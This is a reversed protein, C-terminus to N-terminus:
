DPNRGSATAGHLLLSLLPEISVVVPVASTSRILFLRGLAPLAAALLDPCDPRLDGRTIGRDVVVRAIRLLVQMFGDRRCAWAPTQPGMNMMLAIFPGHDAFHRDFCALFRRLDEQTTPAPQLEVAELDELMTELNRDMVAAILAERDAFHNYLTGVSVGARAAIADIRATALGDAVLMVEAADLIAAQTQQKIRDRLRSPSPDHM